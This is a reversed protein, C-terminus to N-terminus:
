RITGATALNFLVQVLMLAFQPTFVITLAARWSWGFRQRVAFVMWVLSGLAGLIRFVMTLVGMRALAAATAVSTAYSADLTDFVIKMNILSTLVAPLMTASSILAIRRVTVPHAGGYWLKAAATVLLVGVFWAAVFLAQSLVVAVASVAIGSREPALMQRASLFGLIHSHSYANLLCFACLPLLSIVSPQAQGERGNVLGRDNSPANFLMRCLGRDIAHRRETFWSRGVRPAYKSRSKNKQQREHLLAYIQVSTVSPSPTIVAEAKAGAEARSVLTTLRGSADYSLTAYRGFRARSLRAASPM